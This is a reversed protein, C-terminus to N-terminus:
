CLCWGNWTPLYVITGHIRHSVDFVCSGMLCPAQSWRHNKGLGTRLRRFHGSCTVGAVLFTHLLVLLHLFQVCWHAKLYRDYHIHEFETLPKIKQPFGQAIETSNQFPKTSGGNQIRSKKTHPTDMPEVYRVRFPWHGLANKPEGNFKWKVDHSRAHTHTVFAIIKEVSSCGSGLM